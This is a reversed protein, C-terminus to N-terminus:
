KALGALLPNRTYPTREGHAEGQPGGVIAFHADGAIATEEVAAAEAGRNYVDMDYGADEAIEPAIRHFDFSPAFISDEGHLEFEEEMRDGDMSMVDHQTNVLGVWLPLESKSVAYGTRGWGWSNGTAKKGDAYDKGTSYFKEFGFFKDAEAFRFADDTEKYEVRACTTWAEHRGADQTVIRALLLDGLLFMGGLLMLLIPLVLITEMLISGGGGHAQGCAIAPPTSAANRPLLAM